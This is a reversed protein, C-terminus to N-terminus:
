APGPAFLRNAPFDIAFDRQILTDLGLVGFPKDGYGIQEFFPADSISISHSPYSIEGVDFTESTMTFTELQEGHVDAVSQVQRRRARPPTVRLFDAAPFNCATILGGTDLLFPIRRAFAFNVETTFLPREAMGFNDQKLVASGWSADVPPPGEYIEISRNERRILISYQAFFDQGLIGQPTTEFDRWDNLAPVGSGSITIGSFSIESVDNVPAERVGSLGFVFAPAADSPTSNIRDFANRFLVTRTAATDFIFDFTQGEMEGTVIIRGGYAIRFPLTAIPQAAVDPTKATRPVTCSAALFAGSSIMVSRRTLM